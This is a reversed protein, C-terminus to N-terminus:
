SKRRRIKMGLIALGTGLLLITAPEPVSPAVGCALDRCPTGQVVINDFLLNGNAGTAGNLVFRFAVNPNNFFLSANGTGFILGSGTFANPVGLGSSGLSFFTTGDLSGQLDITIFGTDSRQNAWSLIIDQFGLTSVHIELISGNNQLGTGGQIALAQGALDGMSANLVTGNLFTINAPNATTTLTGKGRDAILNSDNFNWVVIEDAYAVSPLIVFALLVAAHLTRKLSLLVKSYRM